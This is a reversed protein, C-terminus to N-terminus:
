KSHVISRISQMIGEYYSVVETAPADKECYTHLDVNQIISAIASLKAEAITKSEVPKVQKKFLKRM